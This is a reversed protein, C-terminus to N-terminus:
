HPRRLVRARAHVALGSFNNQSPVKRENERKARASTYRAPGELGGTRCAIDVVANELVVWFQVSYIKPPRKYLVSTLQFGEKSHVGPLSQWKVM